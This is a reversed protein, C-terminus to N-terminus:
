ISMERCLWFGEVDDDEADCQNMVLMPRPFVCVLV